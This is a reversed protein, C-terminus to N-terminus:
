KPCSKRYSKVHEDIISRYGIPSQNDWDDFCGHVRTKVHKLGHMFCMSHYADHPLLIVEDYDGFQTATVDLCLVVNPLVIENWCHGHCNWEGVMFRSRIGISSLVRDNIEAAVACAGTLNAAGDCVDDLLRDMIFKRTSAGVCRIREHLIM